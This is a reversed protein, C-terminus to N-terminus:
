ANNQQKRKMGNLRRKAGKEQLGIDLSKLNESDKPSFYHFSTTESKFVKASLPYLIALCFFPSNQKVFLIKKTTTSSDEDTSLHKTEQKRSKKKREAYM